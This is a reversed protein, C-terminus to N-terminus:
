YAWLQDVVRGFRDFGSLANGGSTYDLKVDIDMYDETVIKNAGLYTYKANAESAGSDQITELRSM